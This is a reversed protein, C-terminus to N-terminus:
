PRDEEEAAPRAFHRRLWGKLRLMAQSHLQSVRSETLGLVAGVEKMTLEEHYYLTVVIKEREPLRGIAEAVLEVREQGLLAALPDVEGAELRQEINLREEGSGFGLDELSFISMEGVRTLLEQYGDLSVGLKEAVEEENPPRGLAGELQHSVKEILSAKQRVSRPVWDLSRLHDLIAGRIRFQAYTSFSAEKRPDYKTMADLLGVIGWSVLDDLEIHPPKRAALRQVVRRVLPLHRRLVEERNGVVPPHATAGVARKRGRAAGYSGHAASM